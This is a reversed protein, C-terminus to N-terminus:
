RAPQNKEKQKRLESYLAHDIGEIMDCASDRVANLVERKDQSEMDSYEKPIGDLSPAPIGFRKCTITAACDCMFTDMGNDARAIERSICFFLKQGDLGRAVNITRTDPSYLAGVGKDVSDSLKIAVTTDTMLAKLKSKLPMSLTARPAIYKGRTQTVDFVHTVDYSTAMTGDKRMYEGNAELVTIATQNKKVSRDREAWDDFSQVYTANPKQSMVLLTNAARMKGMRAQMDLYQNLKGPESFVKETMEDITAYAKDRTQKKNEAWADKDFEESEHTPETEQGNRYLEQEVVLKDFDEM